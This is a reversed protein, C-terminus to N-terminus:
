GTPNTGWIVKPVEGVIITEAICLPVTFQSIASSFPAIISVCVNFEIILRHMSQNIGASQFESKIDSSITGFPVIKVNIKPGRGSFLRSGLANGLPIYFEGTRISKISDIILVSLESATLNLKVSDIQISTIRGAADTSVIAFDSYKMGSESIKKNISNNIHYVLLLRAESAAYSDAAKNFGNVFVYGLIGFSLTIIIFFCLLRKKM